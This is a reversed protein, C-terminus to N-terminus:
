VSRWDNRDQPYSDKDARLDHPYPYKNARRNHTYGWGM